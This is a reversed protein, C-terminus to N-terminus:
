QGLQQVVRNEILLFHNRQAFLDIIQQVIRDNLPDTVALRKLQVTRHFLLLQIFAQYRAKNELRNYLVGDEMGPAIFTANHLDTHIHYTHVSRQLERYRVVTLSKVEPFHM